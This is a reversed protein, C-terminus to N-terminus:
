AVPDKGFRNDGVTGRVFIAEILMWINVLPVLWLFVYYGDRDHDHLRKVVLALSTWISCIALAILLPIALLAGKIALLGIAFFMGLGYVFSKALITLLYAQRGIRGEFSFLLTKLDMFCRHFATKAKRRVVSLQGYSAYTHAYFAPCTVIFTLPLAGTM